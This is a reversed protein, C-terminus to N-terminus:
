TPESAELAFPAQGSDPPSPTEPNGSETGSAPTAEKAILRVVAPRVLQGQLTFGAALPELVVANAPVDNGEASQHRNPDFAEGPAPVFAMLGVRRVADLCANRFQTLQEIVGTKGSRVAGGHLANVHDLVHVLVQLWDREARRLKEVELRLNAKEGEDAKKMFVTFDRVEAAMHDSIEKAGAATREAQLHVNQSENTARSIQAALQELNQIKESIGGLADADLQKVRTRHDLLFPWVGLGAGLVVCIGGAGIEWHGLPTRSGYGIFWALGLMVADGIFFPWKPVPVSTANSM